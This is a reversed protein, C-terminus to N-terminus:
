AEKYQMDLVSRTPIPCPITKPTRFTTTIIGVEKAKKIFTAETISINYGDWNERYYHRDGTLNDLYLQYIQNYQYTFSFRTEHDYVSISLSEHELQLNAM